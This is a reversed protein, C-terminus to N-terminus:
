RTGGGRQMELAVLRSLSINVQGDADCTLYHRVRLRLPHSRRKEDLVDQPVLLPVAHRLGQRGDTMLTFGDRQGVSQTGWLVHEEDFAEAGQDHYDQLLCASFANNERWVRVEAQEGFLRAQQLTAARLAPSVEPFVEPFVSNSLELRSDRIQGWIVGDDAHALFWKENGVHPQVQFWAGLDAAFNTTDLPTVQCGLPKIVREM